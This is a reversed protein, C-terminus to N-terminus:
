PAPVHLSRFFALDQVLEVDGAATQPLSSFLIFPQKQAPLTNKEFLTQPDQTYYGTYFLDTFASRTFILFLPRFDIGIGTDAMRMNMTEFLEIDLMTRYLGIDKDHVQVALSVVTDSLGEPLTASAVMREGERVYDVIDKESIVGSKTFVQESSHLSAASSGSLYASLPTTKAFKLVNRLAMLSGQDRHETLCEYYDIEHMAVYRIGHSAFYRYFPQDAHPGSEILLLDGVLTPAIQPSTTGADGRVQFAYLPSTGTSPVFCASDPLLILPSKEFVYDAKSLLGFNKQGFALAGQAVNAHPIQDLEPLAIDSTECARINGRFCAQRRAATKQIDGVGRSYADLARLVADRTVFNLPTAYTRTNEPVADLFASRFLALDKSYAGITRAQATEYKKADSLDGSALFETRAIELNGLATLFDIPYLSTRVLSADSPDGQRAALADRTKSLEGVASLFQGGDVGALSFLPERRAATKEYALRMAPLAENGYVPLGDKSVTGDNVTYHHNGISIKGRFHATALTHTFFVVTSKQQRRVEYCILAAGVLVVCAAFAGIVLRKKRREGDM